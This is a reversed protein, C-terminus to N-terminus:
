GRTARASGFAFSFHELLRVSCGSEVSEAGGRFLAFFDTGRSPIKLLLTLLLLLKLYVYQLARRRHTPLLLTPMVRM